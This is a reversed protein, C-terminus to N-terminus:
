RNLWEIVILKCLGSLAVVYIPWWVSVEGGTTFWITTGWVSAMCPPCDFIPKLVPAPVRKVLLNRLWGLIMERDFANWVGVIVLAGIFLRAWFDLTM